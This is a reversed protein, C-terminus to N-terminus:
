SAVGGVWDAGKPTGCKHPLLLADKRNEFTLADATNRESKFELLEDFAEEGAHRGQAKWLRKFHIDLSARDGRRLKDRLNTHAHKLCEQQMSEPQLAEPFNIWKKQSDPPNIKM